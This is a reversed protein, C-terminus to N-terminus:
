RPEGLRTGEIAYTVPALHGEGKPYFRGKEREELDEFCEFPSFPFENLHDIRIGSKILANMVESLPHPWTAIRATKGDSNETYAGGENMEPAEQSFYPDGCLFEYVPHFEILHLVGGVKLNESVVGAWRDLDPLWNLAGYSVYVIDYQADSEDKFGYVDSCVFEADLSARKKLENARKISEDSLDVGTM